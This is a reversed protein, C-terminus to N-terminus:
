SCVHQQLQKVNRSVLFYVPIYRLYIHRRKVIIGVHGLITIINKYYILGMDIYNNSNLVDFIQKQSDINKKLNSSRKIFNLNAQYAMSQGDTFMM